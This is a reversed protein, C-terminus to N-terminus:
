SKAFSVPNEGRRSKRPYWEPRELKGKRGKSGLEVGGQTAKKAVAPRGYEGVTKRAQRLRLM